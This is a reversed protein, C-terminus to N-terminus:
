PLQGSSRSPYWELDGQLVRLYSGEDQYWVLSYVVRLPALKSSLQGQLKWIMLVLLQDCLWDLLYQKNGKHERVIKNKFM